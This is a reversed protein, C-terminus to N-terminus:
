HEHCSKIFFLMRDGYDETLFVITATCTVESGQLGLATWLAHLFGIKAINTGASFVNYISPKLNRFPKRYTKTLTAIIKTGKSGDTVAGNNKGM